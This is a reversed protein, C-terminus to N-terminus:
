SIGFIFVANNNETEDAELLVVVFTHVFTVINIIYCFYEKYDQSINKM